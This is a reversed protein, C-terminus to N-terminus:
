LQNSGRKVSSKFHGKVIESTSDKNSYKTGIANKSWKGLVVVLDYPGIYTNRKIMDGLVISSAGYINNDSLIAKM